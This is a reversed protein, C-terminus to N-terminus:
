GGRVAAALWEAGDDGIEHGVTFNRPSAAYARSVARFWGPMEAADLLRNCADVPSEIRLPRPAFAAALEAMDGAFLAGPVVADSAIGLFPEAFASSLGALGRRLLVAAASEEFLGALLALIPGSPEAVAPGHPLNPHLCHDVLRPDHEQACGAALNFPAFSEGWLGVRGPQLEPRSRLWALVARLDGLQLGLVSRGLMREDESCNVYESELGHMEDPRSEGTGRLDPLCVAVSAELLRGIEPARRELFLGKGGHALGVVAPVREDSGDPLLLLAPVDIDPEVRLLVREASHGVVSIAGLVEAKAARRGGSEGLVEGWLRRLRARREDRGLREMGARLPALRAQARRGVQERLPVVRARAADDLCVLDAAERRDQLEPLPPAM